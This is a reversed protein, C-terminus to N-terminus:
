YMERHKYTRMWFLSLSFCLYLSNFTFKDAITTALFMVPWGVIINLVASHCENRTDTSFGTCLHSCPRPEFSISNAMASIPLSPDSKAISTLGAKVKLIITLPTKTRFVSWMHLNFTIKAKRKPWRKKHMRFCSTWHWNYFWFTNM